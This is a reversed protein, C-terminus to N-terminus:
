KVRLRDPLLIVAQVAAEAEQMIPLNRQQLNSLYTKPEQWLYPLQDTMYAQFHCIELPYTMYWPGVAVM